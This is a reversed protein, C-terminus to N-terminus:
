LQGSRPQLREDVVGVRSAALLLGKRVRDIITRKVRIFLIGLEM